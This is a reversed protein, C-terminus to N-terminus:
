PLCAQAAAARNNSFIIVPTAARIPDEALAKAGFQITKYLFFGALLYYALTTFLIFIAITYILGQIPNEFIADIFKHGIECARNCISHVRSYNEPTFM